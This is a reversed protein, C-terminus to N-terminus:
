SAATARLDHRVRLVRAFKPIPRHEYFGDCKVEVVDGVKVGGSAVLRKCPIRVVEGAYAVRIGTEGVHVVPLDLHEHKKVKKKSGRAGIPAELDVAVLGEGGGVEVFSRWLQEANSRGTVLPVLPLRRLDKPRPKVFRNTVKDHAYGHGDQWWWDQVGISCQWRELLSHRVRYPERAVYRGVCRIVDFVHLNAWGRTERVRVAAESYVDLEGVLTSSPIGTAMGYLGDAEEHTLAQGTRFTLRSIHGSADTSFEVYSGDAKAMLGWRDPSLELAKELKIRTIAGAYDTLSYRPPM